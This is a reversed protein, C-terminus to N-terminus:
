YEIDYIVKESILDNTREFYIAHEECAGYKDIDQLSDFTMVVGDEWGADSKAAAPIVVKHGLRMDKVQPSSNGLKGIADKWMSKQDDSLHAHFKVLVIHTIM